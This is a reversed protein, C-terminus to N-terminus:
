SWFVVAGRDCTQASVSRSPLVLGRGRAVPLAPRTDEQGVRGLSFGSSWKGERPCQTSTFWGGLAEGWSHSWM